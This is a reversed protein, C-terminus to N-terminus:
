NFLKDIPNTVGAVSEVGLQYVQELEQKLSHDFDSAIIQSKFHNIQKLSLSM